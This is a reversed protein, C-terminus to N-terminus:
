YDAEDDFAHYIGNETVSFIVDLVGRAGEAPTNKADEAGSDTRLLGPIVSVVLGAALRRDDALCLSLMNQAAKAIRYAYSFDRDRFDGRANFRASGLRSTINVIRAGQLRPHLAKVTEFAAVCHLEFQDRLEAADACAIDFGTAGTGANNILLDVRPAGQAHVFSELSSAYDSATVDLTLHRYREHVLPCPSRAVGLVRYDRSLLQRALELGLGRSTGTVLAVPLNM